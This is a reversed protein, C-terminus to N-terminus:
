DSCDVWVEHVVDHYGQADTYTHTHSFKCSRHTGVYNCPGTFYMAEGDYPCIATTPCSANASGCVLLLSLLLTKM